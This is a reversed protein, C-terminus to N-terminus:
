LDYCERNQSDADTGRDHWEQNMRLIIHCEGSANYRYSKCGLFSPSEVLNGVIENSANAERATIRMRPM